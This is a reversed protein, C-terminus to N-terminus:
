CALKLSAQSVKVLLDYPAVIDKVKARVLSGIELAQASELYVLGDIEPAQGSHRGLYRFGRRNSESSLSDVRVDLSTGRFAELKEQQIGQQLEMLRGYREEKVVQDIQDSFNASPTGQEPFYTFAGLHDFESERVFDLLDLFDAETEGPFGVMLTTRLSLKSIRSRLSSILRRVEQSKEPRNMRRLIRDSIHQLPIDVYGTFKESNSLLDILDDHFFKPYNYMLRYWELGEVKELESLLEFLGQKEPRDRGYSTLDQAILILERVGSGVLQHVEDLIGDISRSHHRGRLKPIICFSCKRNCGESIKVYAFPRLGGARSVFDPLESHGQLQPADEGILSLRQDLREQSELREAIEPLKSFDGTRIFADVEPFTKQMPELYRETMCGAVVVAKLRGLKKKEVFESITDMSERKAPDLFGCTNIVVMDAEDQNGTVVFRKASVAQIMAETDVLNKPCGLSVFGIKSRSM